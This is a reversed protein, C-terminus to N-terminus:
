RAPAAPAAPAGPSPAAGPAPATGGAPRVITTRAALERDAEARAEAGREERLQDIVPSRVSAFTV